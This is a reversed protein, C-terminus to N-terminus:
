RLARLYRGATAVDNMRSEWTVGVLLLVLGVGGLSAWRPVADALPALHRVALLGTVLAGAVVPTAWRREVGVALVLLGAVAVLAGRLSVPEDLAILLSPLLALTLGPALARVSATDPSRLLQWAGTAVLLLAAPLTVLEPASVDAEFRLMGALFLVGAALWRYADRHPDLIGALATASGLVTLSIALDPSSGALLLGALAAPVLAGEVAIRRASQHPLVLCGLLTAAVFGCILWSTWAPTADAYRAWSGVALAGALTAVAAGTPGGVGRLSDARLAGAVLGLVVALTTAAIALLLESPVGTRLADFTAIAVLAAAVAGGTDQGQVVLLTAAAAVLLVLFGLVVAWLPVPLWTVTTAVGLLVVAPAMTLLVTGAARRRGAPLQRLLGTAVLLLTAAVVTWVWSAPADIPPDLRHTAPVDFRGVAHDLLLAPQAVLVAALVVSGLSAWGAAARGWIRPAAASVVALGVLIACVQLLDRQVGSAPGLAFLAAPLLAAAAAVSHLLNARGDPMRTVVLGGALLAAALLPWGTLELYWQTASDGTRALGHGLLLAWSVLALGGTLWALLPLPHRVLWAFAALLVAALLTGPAPHAAGWGNSTTVILLGLAAALQAGHLRGVPQTRAWLGAGTGAALVTGGVVAALGRWGLDAVVPFGASDAALLDVALMATVLLWLTEAAGRLGRRTVLVAGGLLLATVALLVLTRGTLGLVSWTVAVFVIAAVLLCLAGLGLLITSVSRGPLRTASPPGDHGTTTPGDQVPTAAYSPSVTAASVSRLQEVLRDATVMTDWLQVALPGSLVLGCGSCRGDATLASRCDPCITRDVLRSM